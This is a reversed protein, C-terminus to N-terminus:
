ELDDQRPFALAADYEEDNIYLKDCLGALERAFEANLDESRVGLLEIEQLPATTRRARACELLLDRLVQAFVISVIDLYRLRECISADTRCDLCIAYSRSGPPTSCKRFFLPKSTPYPSIIPLDQVHWGFDCTDFAVAWAAAPCRDCEM